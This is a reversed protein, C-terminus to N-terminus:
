CPEDFRSRYGVDFLAPVVPLMRIGKGTCGAQIEVKSADSERTLHRNSGHCTGKQGSSLRNVTTQTAWGVWPLLSISLIGREEPVLDGAFDGQAELSSRGEWELTSTLGVHSGSDSQSGSCVM